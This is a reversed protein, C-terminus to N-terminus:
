RLQREVSLATAVVGLLAGAGVVAALQIPSALSALDPRFLAPLTELLDPALQAKLILLGGAALGGGILGALLGEVLFPARVFADTAGVLRLIEIERRREHVGLRVVSGALVAAALVLIPLLLLGAAEAGRALRVFRRAHESGLDVEAIGELGQLEAQLVEVARAEPGPIVEISAPLPNTALETLGRGEEGMSAALRRLAEEPSVFRAEGKVLNAVREQLRLGDAASTGDRLYITFETRSGWSELLARAQLMATGIVAALILSVAISFMSVLHTFPAHVMAAWAKRFAYSARNWLTGQVGFSSALRSM